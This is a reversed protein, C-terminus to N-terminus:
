TRYCSNLKVYDLTLDSAYVGFSGSGLHGDITVTFNPKRMVAKAKREAKAGASIGRRAVCVQIDDRSGLGSPPYRPSFRSEGGSKLRLMRSPRHSASYYIDVLDPRLTAGARGAAGLIRGWNPDEGFFSTKVLPSNAITYAIKRAEGDDKAGRVDIRVAKTAGEGDAVMKRALDDMLTYLNEAFRRCEPTKLRFPRNGALGNALILATDNTSTDGDVTVRNFTEDVCNKFIVRLAEKPVFADTVIFALMTAMHPEIMGAGKAFGAIRYPKGFIKGEAHAVKMGHDTTLIAKASRLLGGSSLEGVAKPIKQSIQKIPLPVGIKGTSCVLVQGKPVKLSRATAAVMAEADKLGRQGTCANANGSNVIVARCLGSRINKKSVLVPAAQVLNTTFTGVVTAPVESYILALDPGNGKKIGASIGSFQFGPITFNKKSM